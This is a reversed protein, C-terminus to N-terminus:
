SKDPKGGYWQLIHPLWLRNQFDVHQRLVPLSESPLATTNLIGIHM